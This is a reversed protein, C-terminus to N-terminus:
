GKPPPATTTLMRGTPTHIYMVDHGELYPVTEMVPGRNVGALEAVRQVDQTDPNQWFFLHTAQSYAELPIHRPRQTGAVMSVGLSRGQLWLLELEDALGLFDSLYRVEDLALTWRGNEFALMLMQRFALQHARKLERVTAKKPFPPKLLFRHSVDPHIQEVTAVQKYGMSRVLQTQTSDVKKTGAFIIWDRKPLIANVLTTKGKGTPGILTVHEGQTWHFLSRYFTDWPVYSVQEATGWEHTEAIAM